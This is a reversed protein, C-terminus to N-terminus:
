KNPLSASLAALESYQYLEAHMREACGILSSYYRPTQYIKISNELVLLKPTM